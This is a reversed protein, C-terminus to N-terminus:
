AQDSLILIVYWIKTLPMFIYTFINTVFNKLGVWLQVVWFIEHELGHTQSHTHLQTHTYIHTYTHTHTHTDTDTGTTDARNFQVLPVQVWLSVCACVSVCVCVCVCEGCVCVCVSVFVSACVCVRVCMCVYHHCQLIIIGTLDIALEGLCVCLWVRSAFPSFPSPPVMRDIHRFPSKSVNRELDNGITKRVVVQREDRALGKKWFQILVMRNVFTLFLVQM